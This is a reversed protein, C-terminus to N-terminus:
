NKTHKNYKDCSNNGSAGPILLKILKNNHKKGLLSTLVESNEKGNWRPQM